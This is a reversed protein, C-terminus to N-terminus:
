EVFSKPKLPEAKIASAEFTGAVDFHLLEKIMHANWFVNDWQVPFISSERDGPVFHYQMVGFSWAEGNWYYIRLFDFGPMELGQGAAYLSDIGFAAEVVPVNAERVLKRTMNFTDNGITPGALAYSTLTRTDDAHRFFGMVPFIGKDDLSDSNIKIFQNLLPTFKPIKNIKLPLLSM